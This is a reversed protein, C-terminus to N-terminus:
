VKSYEPGWFGKDNLHFDHFLIPEETMMVKLIKGAVVAIEEEAAESCRMTCIHRLARINATWVGGTAVGMPIIRRGLSTVHKKFSFKSEPKLEDHWIACFESYYHETIEAHKQFLERTQQKKVAVSKLHAVNYGSTANMFEIYEPDALDEATMTLLPTETLPIDIYRIYRMSGESIAVGARHRNMEGTFVRSVGEIAFTFYVHELVSGHGSKLINDCYEAIDERIKSVNPNLKGPQFSLYCRRGMLEVLREGSTKIAAEGHGLARVTGVAYREVVDPDCGLHTMWRSIEADDPKSKAILFIEPQVFKM